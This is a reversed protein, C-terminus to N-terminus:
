RFSTGLTKFLYGLFIVKKPYFNDFFLQFNSGLFCRDLFTLFISKNAQYGFCLYYQNLLPNLVLSSIIVTCMCICLYIVMPANSKQDLTHVLDFFPTPCPHSFTLSYYSILYLMM